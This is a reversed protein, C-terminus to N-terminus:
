LNPCVAQHKEIEMRICKTKCKNYAQCKVPMYRCQDAHGAVEEYNLIKPCGLDSNNCVFKVNRLEKAIQVTINIFRPKACQMPCQGTEKAFNNLCTQHFRNKCEKCEWPNVLVGQCLACLHEKKIENKSVVNKTNMSFSM